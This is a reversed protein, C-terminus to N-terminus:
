CRSGPTTSIVASFEGKRVGDERGVGIHSFGSMASDLYDVQHPLGEQICFIGPNVKSIQKCLWEKRLSWSNKGDNPNDYRINYSMVLISQSGADLVCCSLLVGALISKFYMLPRKDSLIICKQRVCPLMELRVIESKLISLEM